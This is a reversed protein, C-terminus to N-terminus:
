GSWRTSCGSRSARRARRAPATRRGGAPGPARELSEPLREGDAPWLLYGAAGAHLYETQKRTSDTASLILVAIDPAVDLLRHV